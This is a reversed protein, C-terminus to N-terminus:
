TKRQLVLYGDQSFIVRYLGSHLLSQVSQNYEAQGQPTPAGYDTLPFPYINATSDLVVYSAQEDMYPYQYILHRESLHPVLTDQASVSADAPILAVVKTFLQTHATPVPWNFYREGPLDGLNQMELSFGGMFLLLIVILGTSAFRQLTVNGAVAALSQNVGGATDRLDAWFQKAVRTTISVLVAMGSIGAFIMFPVLEVSYQHLGLQMHPDSSLLNILLAPLALVLASPAFIGLYGVPKILDRINVRANPSVIHSRILQIPHTIVYVAAQLPSSGLYSYRAATPSHGIPSFIHMVVLTIAIWVVSLAILGLAVNRRRQFVLIALAMMVIDVPIEEKTSLALLCAIVLGLNNRTLMFYIAFMLFAAALTVAHFDFIEASQLAPFLLYATAFGIGALPSSLRRCAIWYAPFAGTAVVVAQLLMLTKPSPAIFYLLSIPLMLPEFHIAFRSVNGICNTDSINNCITQHLLAGHLTNWIAQDMIGMDEANSRFADFISWTYATFYVAFSLALIGVLILAIRPWRGKPAPPLEAFPAALFKWIPGVWSQARRTWAVPTGPTEKQPFAQTDPLDARMKPQDQVEQSEGLRAM